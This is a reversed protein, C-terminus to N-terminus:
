RCGRGAANKADASDNVSFRVLRLPSPDSSVFGLQDCEFCRDVVFQKSFCGPEGKMVEAIKKLVGKQGVPLQSPEPLNVWFAYTFTCTKPRFFPGNPGVAKLEVELQEGDLYAGLPMDRGGDMTNLEPLQRGNKWPVCKIEAKQKGNADPAQFNLTFQYYTKRARDSRVIWSLNKQNQDLSVVFHESFSEIRYDSFISALVPKANSFSLINGKFDLGESSQWKGLVQDKESDAHELDASWTLGAPLVPKMWKLSESVVWTAAGAVLVLSICVTVWWKKSTPYPFSILGSNDPYIAFCAPKPGLALQLEIQLFEIFTKHPDSEISAPKVATFHNTKSLRKSDAFFRAAQDKTVIPSIWPLFIHYLISVDEYAEMGRLIFSENKEKMRLFHDNLEDLSRDNFCLQQAQRNRLLWALPRLMSAWFSGASPSAILMLGVMKGKFEDRYETLLYRTVIGGLSHCVFIIKKYDLVPPYGEKGRTRLQGIIERAANSVGTQGSGIDAAYGALFISMGNCRPDECILRPWYVTKGNESRMWCGHSDSLIGHVFVIVTDSGKCIRFFVGNQGPPPVAKKWADPEAEVRAVEFANVVPDTRHSQAPPSVQKAAAADPVTFRRERPQLAKIHGMAPKPTYAQHTLRRYLADYGDPEYLKYCVTSRLELPISEIDTSDFLVPIFKENEGQGDYLLQLIIKSEWCVGLGVGPSEQNASRRFYTPTCVIIVFNANTIQNGTWAPWGVSPVTEYQDVNADVGDVRLRDALNLVRELHEASDHSYSIFVLPAVRPQASSPM